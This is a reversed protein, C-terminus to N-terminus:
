VMNSVLAKDYATVAEYHGKLDKFVNGRALWVEAREPKDEPAKHYALFRTMLVNSIALPMAVACASAEALYPKIALAKDYAAFAEDHRKLENFASGLWAM